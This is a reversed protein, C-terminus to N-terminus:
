IEHTEEFVALNECLYKTSEVLGYLQRSLTNESESFVKNSSGQQFLCLLINM